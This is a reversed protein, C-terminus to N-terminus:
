ATLLGEDRLWAVSRGMGEVLSVEPSWDLVQGAKEISYTGPHVLYELAEPAFPPERGILRMGRDAATGAAALVPTPLLRMPAGAAAALPTFYERTTVGVGGTINFIQGAAEPHEAAALAGAVLDDVYTPSLIGRGRAPLAFLGAQMLELPRLVWPKSGPGYVDGPRVVTVEIGGEAAIRLAQHESAVKTDTYPGGTMRVPATEALPEGAPFDRGYVVISSLHLARTVGANRAAELVRRTGDVNVRWFTESDGAEEVIAATHVVVDADDLVDTWPGPLSVDGAVIGDGPALDIGIVEYGRDTLSRVFARGIFGAAGTVVAVSM